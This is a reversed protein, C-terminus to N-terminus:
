KSPDWFQEIEIINWKKSKTYKEIKKIIAIYQAYDNISKITPITCHILIKHKTLGRKLIGDLPPHLCEILGSRGLGGLYCAIKLYVNIIKAAWGIMSSGNNAKKQLKHAVSECQSKHWQNFQKKNIPIKGKDLLENFLIKELIPYIDARSKVPCGSRTSSFACWAAADLIIKRKHESIKM